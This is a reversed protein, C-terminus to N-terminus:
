RVLLSCRSFKVLKKETSNKEADQSHKGNVEVHQCVALHEFWREKEGRRGKGGRREGGKKKERKEERGM